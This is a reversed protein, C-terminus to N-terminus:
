LEEKVHASSSDELLYEENKKVHDMVQGMWVKWDLKVDNTIDKMLSEKTKAWTKHPDSSMLMSEFTTQNLVLFSGHKTQDLLLKKQQVETHINNSTDSQKALREELETLERSLLTLLYKRLCIRHAGDVMRYQLHCPNNVEMPPSPTGVVIGPIDICSSSIRSTSSLQKHCTNWLNKWDDVPIYENPKSPIDNEDSWHM